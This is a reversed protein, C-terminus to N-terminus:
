IVRNVTILYLYHLFRAMYQPIEEFNCAGTESIKILINPALCDWSGDSKYLYM